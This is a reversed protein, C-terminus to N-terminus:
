SSLAESSHSSEIIKSKILWEILHDQMLNTFQHDANPDIFVKLNTSLNKQNISNVLDQSGGDIFNVLHDKQASIVLIHRHNWIELPVHCPDKSLILNLLHNPIFPPEFNFQNLHNSKLNSARNSMLKKFNPSGIIPILFNIRKDHAAALWTSHAGLSIGILGWNSIKRQDSPFLYAPLFDILFSVDQATGLQISYMDLAHSHNGQDWAQNAISKILRHGHNRHDFTVLILQNSKIQNLLKWTFEELSQSNSTRGHLIFICTLNSHSQDSQLHQNNDFLNSFVQIQIGSILIQKSLHNIKM